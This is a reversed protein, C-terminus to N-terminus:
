LNPNAGAALLRTTMAENSHMVAWALATTGDGSTANVDVRMGLLAKVAETDDRRAADLLAEASAASARNELGHVLPQMASTALLSIVCANTWHRFGPRM